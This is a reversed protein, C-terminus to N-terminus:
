NYRTLYMIQNQNITKSCICNRWCSLRCCLNEHPSKNIKKPFLEQAWTALIGRQDVYSSAPITAGKNAFKIHIANNHSYNYLKWIIFSFSIKCFMRLKVLVSTSLFITQFRSRIIRIWLCSSSPLSGSIFEHKLAETFPFTMTHSSLTYKLAEHM